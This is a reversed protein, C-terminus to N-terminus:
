EMMRRMQEKADAIRQDPTRAALAPSWGQFPAPNRAEWWLLATARPDSAMLRHLMTTGTRPFGVIVLPDDIQEELIEPHKALWYQLRLRNVLLGIIREMLSTRGAVTLRGEEELSCLLIGLPELFDRGGFDDLGTRNSAERLVAGVRLEDEM